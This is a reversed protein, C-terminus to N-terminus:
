LHTKFGYKKFYAVLEPTNTEGIHALFENYTFFGKGHGDVASHIAEDDEDDSVSTLGVRAIKPRNETTDADGNAKEGMAGGSIAINPASPTDIIPSMAELKTPPKPRPKGKSGNWTTSGDPNDCIQGGNWSWCIPMEM